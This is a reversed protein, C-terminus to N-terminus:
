IKMERRSCSAFTENKQASFPFHSKRKSSNKKKKTGECRCYLIRLRDHIPSHRIRGANKCFIIYIFLKKIIETYKCHYPTLSFKCLGSERERERKLENEYEILEVSFLPASLKGMLKETGM